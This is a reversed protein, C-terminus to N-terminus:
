GKGETTQSLHNEKEKKKKKQSCSTRPGPILGMGYCHGMGSCHCYWIRLGRLWRPVGQFNRYFIYEELESNKEEAIYAINFRRNLDYVIRKIKSITKKLGLIKMQNREYNENEM